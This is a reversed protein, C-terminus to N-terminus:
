KIRRMVKKMITEVCLFDYIDDIEYNQWREIIYPITKEQYFSKLEKLKTVKSMYIVGYPFYTKPYEQRQTIANESKDILPKVFGNKIVKSIFPNELQIEGVSVLSNAREENSILKKIALDLDNNKRLPSTPELLILYDYIKGLSQFQGLTYNIVDMSSSNDKALKIPRLFPIDAGYKEATSAIETDETSVHITDIYICKSAQEISWAILPKEHLLKINKRPLGKSGGRAPIIALITKNKYM